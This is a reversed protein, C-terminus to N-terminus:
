RRLELRRAMDSGLRGDPDIRACVDKFRALQPYMAAMTEPAMRADKALYLRGGASAVLQDAERLGQELGPTDAPIDIAVTWGEGPFSLMGEHHPGFRKLVALYMPLRRRRILEPIERVLNAARAPVAFQYQILGGPGYLRNWDGLVDLPFLQASMSLTRGREHRPTSRWHLANFARVTAPRLVGGPFGRPVALAPHAPFPPAGRTGAAPRGALRRVADAASAGAGRRVPAGAGGPGESSRTVVARGFATGESLLDLWAISHSHATPESMLALAEEFSGVRDIDAISEASAMPVVRVRASTIVGTLGMGGVTAAFLEPESDRSVEVAGLGPTCLTFGHLNTGFSGDRPHNKGHVDAAIAGGVTLHRTGPVVPLTLGAAALAALVQAFTSGADVDIMGAGADIAPEGRLGSMDLVTGRGNQAADGYSRGAGRAITGGPRRRTLAELV